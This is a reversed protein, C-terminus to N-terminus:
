SFDDILEGIFSERRVKPPYNLAFDRQVAVARWLLPTKVGGRQDTRKGSLKNPILGKPSLRYKKCSSEGSWTGRNYGSVAHPKEGAASKKV